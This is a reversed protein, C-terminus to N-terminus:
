DQVAASNCRSGHNEAFAKTIEAGILLIQANYYVWILIVVISAAAGFTSEFAQRGIYMGIVTKGVEFLFATLIAGPLVDKWEISIDPLWKFMMAFLITIVGLSVTFEIFQFISAPFQAGFYKAAANLGASVILSLLLLFGVILVGVLSIVYARLFPWLGSVKREDIDWVSNLADKLQVVVGIAAFLLTFVGIIGALLGQQPRSANSLISRVAQAGTEGMAASVTNSIESRATDQGFFFGAIAIAIILIPGISFVSYYALAAGSRADKHEIWGSGATRLLTIITNLM